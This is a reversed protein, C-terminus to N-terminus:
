KNSETHEKVWRRLMNDNISLNDAIQSLPINSQQVLQVAELKYERRYKRRQQM